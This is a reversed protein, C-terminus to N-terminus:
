GDGCGHYGHDFVVVFVITLDHQRCPCPHKAFQGMDGRRSNHTKLEVSDFRRIPHYLLDIRGVSVLLALRVPPLTGLRSSSRSSKCSLFSSLWIYKCVLECCVVACCHAPLCDHRRIPVM